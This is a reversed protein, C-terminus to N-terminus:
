EKEEFGNARAWDALRTEDFVDEPEMNSGIWDIASELLQTGIVAFIFDTDQRVTTTM